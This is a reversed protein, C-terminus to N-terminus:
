IFKSDKCNIVLERNLLYSIYRQKVTTKKIKKNINKLFLLKYFSKWGYWDNKKVPNNALYELRKIQLQYYKYYALEKELILDIYLRKADEYLPKLETPSKRKPPVELSPLIRIPYSKSYVDLSYQDIKKMIKLNENNFAILTQLENYIFSFDKNLAKIEKTLSPLEDICIENKNIGLIQKLKHNLKEDDM